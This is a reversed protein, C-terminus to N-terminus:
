SHRIQENNKQMKGSRAPYHKVNTKHFHIIIGKTVFYIVLITFNNPVSEPSAQTITLKGGKKLPERTFWNNRPFGYFPWLCVTCDWILCWIIIYHPTQEPELHNAFLIKREMLAPGRLAIPLVGSEYTPPGPNSVRDPWM